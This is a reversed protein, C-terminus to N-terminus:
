GPLKEMCYQKQKGRLLQLVMELLGCDSGSVGWMVPLTPPPYEDALVCLAELAGRQGWHDSSSGLLVSCHWVIYELCYPVTPSTKAEVRGIGALSLQATVIRLHDYSLRSHQRGLSLMRSGDHDLSMALQVLTNSVATRVRHDPDSLLPIVVGELIDPLLSPKVIALKAYNIIALTQLLEVKLLWYNVDVLKMLKELLEIAKNPHTSSLLPLLCVRLSECAAKLVVQSDSSLITLIKECAQGVIPRCEDFRGRHDRLEAGILQALVQSMRSVLKPDESELFSELRENFGTLCSPSLMVAGTMVSLGVSQVSVRSHTLITSSIFSMLDELPINSGESSTLYGNDGASAMVAWTSLSSNSPSVRGHSLPTSSTAPVLSSLSDSPPPTGRDVDESHEFYDDCPADLQSENDSKEDISFSDFTDPSWVNQVLLPPALPTTVFTLFDQTSSRIVNEVVELAVNSTNHDGYKAASLSM